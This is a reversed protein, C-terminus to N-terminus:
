LTHTFIKLPIGCIRYMFQTKKKRRKRIKERKNKKEHLSFTPGVSIVILEITKTPYKGMCPSVTHRAEEKSALALTPFETNFIFIITEHIRGLTM